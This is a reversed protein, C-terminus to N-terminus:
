TNPEQPTTTPQEGRCRALLAYETAIINGYRRAHEEARYGPVTYGYETWERYAERYAKIDDAPATLSAIRSEATECRDCPEITHLCDGAEAAIGQKGREIAALVDPTDSM